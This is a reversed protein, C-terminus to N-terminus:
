RHELETNRVLSVSYNNRVTRQMCTQTVSQRHRILVNGGHLKSAIRGPKPFHLGSHHRMELIQVFAAVHDVATMDVHEDPDVIHSARDVLVIEGRHRSIRGKQLLLRQPEAELVGVAILAHDGIAPDFLQHVLRICLARRCDPLLPIREHHLLHGQAPPYLLFLLFLLFRLPFRSIAVAVDHVIAPSTVATKAFLLMREPEVVNLLERPFQVQFM